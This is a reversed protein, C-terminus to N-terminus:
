KNNKVANNQKSTTVAQQKQASGPQQAPKTGNKAPATEVSDTKATTKEAQEQTEEATKASPKESEQVEEQEPEEEGMLAALTNNLKAWENYIDRLSALNKEPYQTKIATLDIQQDKANPDTAKIVQKDHATDKFYVYRADPNLKQLANNGNEEDSFQKLLEGLNTGMAILAEQEQHLELIKDLAADAQDKNKTKKIQDLYEKVLENLRKLRREIGPLLYVALQPDPKKSLFQFKAAEPYEALLQAIYRYNQAILEYKGNLQEGGDAPCALIESTPIRDAKAGPARKGKGAKKAEEEEKKKREEEERKKKEEDTEKKDEKKGKGKGGGGGKEKKGTEPKAEAKSPSGYDGYGYDGGYPYSGYEDRGGRGGGYYDGMPQAGATRGPTVQRGKASEAQAKETLKKEEEKIKALEPGIEEFLKKIDAKTAQLSAGYASLSQKLAEKAADSLKEIGFSSVIIRPEYTELQKNLQELQNYLATNKIFADIFLYKGTKLDTKKLDSIHQRLDIISDKQKEWTIGAGVGSLKNQSAWNSFRREMDLINDTKVLFDDTYDILSTLLALAKEEATTLPAKSVIPAAKHELAAPQPQTQPPIQQLGQQQQEMEAAIIQEFFQGLEEESMTSMMQEVESVARQFEAQEEPSLSNVYADIQQAAAQLEQELMQMEEPSLNELGPIAGMPYLQAFGTGLFCILLFYIVRMTNFLRTFLIHM